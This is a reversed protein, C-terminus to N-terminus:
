DRPSPSTYLLCLIYPANAAEIGVRRAQFASRNEPQRILRVRADRRRIEEVIEVTADTSADDVCIIEIDVLTQALCSQLATAVFDEDNFLPIIISVRPSSSM